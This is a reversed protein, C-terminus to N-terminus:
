TQKEIGLAQCTNEHISSRCADRRERAMSYTKELEEQAEKNLQILEEIRQMQQDKTQHIGPLQDVLEDITASKALVENALPMVLEKDKTMEMRAHVRVFEQLTKPMQNGEGCTKRVAARLHVDGAEYQKWLDETDVQTNTTTNSEQNNGGLNGSEPAVADRLGRFAEFMALSLGDSYYSYLSNQHSVIGKRKRCVNYCDGGAETDCYKGIGDQLATIPDVKADATSADPQPPNVHSQTAQNETAM